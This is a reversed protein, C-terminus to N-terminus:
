LLFYIFAVYFLAIFMIHRFILYIVILKPCLFHWEKRPIANLYNLNKNNGKISSSRIHISIKITQM